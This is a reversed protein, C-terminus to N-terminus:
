QNKNKPNRSIIRVLKFDYEGGLTELANIELTYFKNIELSSIDQKSKIKITQNTKNLAHFSNGREKIKNIKFLFENNTLFKEIQGEIIAHNPPITEYTTPPMKSIKKHIHCSTFTVASTIAIIFIIFKFNFM